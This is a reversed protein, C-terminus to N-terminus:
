LPLNGKGAAEMKQNRVARRPSILQIKLYCIYEFFVVLFLINIPLAKFEIKRCHCEKKMGLTLM